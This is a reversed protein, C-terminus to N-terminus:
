KLEDGGRSIGEGVKIGQVERLEMDPKGASSMRAQGTFRAATETGTMDAFISDKPSAAM